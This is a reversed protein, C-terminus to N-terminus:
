LCIGIIMIHTSQLTQSKGEGQSAVNWDTSYILHNLTTNHKWGATFTVNTFVFLQQGRRTSQCCMPLRTRSSYHMIRQSTNTRRGVTNRSVNIITFPLIYNRVTHSNFSESVGMIGLMDSDIITEMMMYEYSAMLLSSLAHQLM